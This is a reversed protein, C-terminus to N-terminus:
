HEVRTEVRKSRHHLSTQNTDVHPRSSPRIYSQRPEFVQANQKPFRADAQVPHALFHKRNRSHLRMHVPRRETRPDM